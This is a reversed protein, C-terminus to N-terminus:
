ATPLDLRYARIAVGRFLDAREGASYGSSLRKFANWFRRYSGSVGDVPFNSELMCRDPGFVEVSTNFVSRWAEAMETSSATGGMAAVKPFMTAMGFGGLKLVVNPRRAVETMGAKWAAFAGAPDNAFAGVNLPGGVHDLVITMDKFRDAFAAVEDLQNQFCWVDLVMGRSAVEAAAELWTPSNLVGAPASKFAAPIAPDDTHSIRARVGRFRGEGATAHADLAAGVASGLNFDVWSVIAECAKLGAPSQRAAKVAFDTEGVPKMVEPGDARYGQGCDVYVTAIVKHGAIDAALDPLMYTAPFGHAGSMMPWLHHHPDVIPLDPELPAEDAEPTTM